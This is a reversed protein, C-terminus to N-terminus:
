MFRVMSDNAMMLENAAQTEAGVPGVIAIM